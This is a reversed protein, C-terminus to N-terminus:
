APEADLEPVILRGVLTVIDEAALLPPFLPATVIMAPPDCGLGILTPLMLLPEPCLAPVIVMELLVGSIRPFALWTLMLLPLMLLPACKIGPAETWVELVPPEVPPAFEPLLPPDLLLVLPPVVPPDLV